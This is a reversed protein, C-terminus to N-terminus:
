REQSTRHRTQWQKVVKQVPEIVSYPTKYILHRDGGNVVIHQARPYIKNMLSQEAKAWAKNLASPMQEDYYNGSLFTVTVNEPVTRMLRAIRFQAFSENIFYHEDVVTSLHRPHCLLHKQRKEVDESIGKAMHLPHQLLGFMIALRALGIAAGLQLTQYSPVIHGFWHHRWIGSDLDFLDDTIPNILILGAVDSPYLQAYFQSVLAGLEAGVFVFPKPQQSSKTLLHQLDDVMREVTYPTWKNKYNSQGEKGDADTHNQHPRDSFGLGARDYVCVRSYIALKTWVMTWADSTMGTPADLVVTPPDKGQCALFLKQGWGIDYLEGIEPKLHTIERQLAAYNLFPPILLMAVLIKAATAVHKMFGRSQSEKIQDVHTKRVPRKDPRPDGPHKDEAVTLSSKGKEPVTRKRAESM